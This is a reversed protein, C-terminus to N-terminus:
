VSPLRFDRASIRCGPPGMARLEVEYSELTEDRFRSRISEITPQTSPIKINTQPKRRQSFNSGLSVACVTRFYEPNANWIGVVATMPNERAAPSAARIPAVSRRLLRPTGLAIGKARAAVLKRRAM